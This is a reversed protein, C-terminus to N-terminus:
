DRGLLERLRELTTPRFPNDPQLRDRAIQEAAMGLGVIGLGGGVAKGVDKGTLKSGSGDSMKNAKNDGYMDDLYTDMQNVFDAQEPTWSDPGADHLQNYIDMSERFQKNQERNFQRRDRNELRALKGAKGEALAQLLENVDPKKRRKIDM